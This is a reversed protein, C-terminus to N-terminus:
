CPVLSASPLRNNTRSYAYSPITHWILPMSHIEWGGIYGDKSGAQHDTYLITIENDSTNETTSMTSERVQRPRYVEDQILIIKM